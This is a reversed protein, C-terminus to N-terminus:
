LENGREINRSLRVALENFFTALDTRSVKEEQLQNVEQNILATLVEGQQRIQLTTEQFKNHTQQRLNKVERTFQEDLQILRTNLDAKLATLEHQIDQQVSLREQRDIKAKESLSEIEGEIREDMVKLRQMLEDRLHLSEQAFREELRKFRKEYDRMQGGFLIDRVQDINGVKAGGLTDSLDLMAAASPQIESRASPSDTLRSKRDRPDLTLTETKEETMTKEGLSTVSVIKSRAQPDPSERLPKHSLAREGFETVNQPKYSM